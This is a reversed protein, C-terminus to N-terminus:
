IRYTLATMLCTEVLQLKVRIEEKGVKNKAGRADIERSITECKRAIIKIHEEINGERKNNNRLVPINWSEMSNKIKCQRTSDRREREKEPKVMMYKAKEVGYRMKKEKEMKTCNRIGKRIEAIDDMYVSMGIDAKWYSYQVTEGINNVKAYSSLM